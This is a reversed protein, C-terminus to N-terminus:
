ANIIEIAANVIAQAKTMNVPFGTVQQLRALVDQMELWLVSASLQMKRNQAKAARAENIIQGSISFVELGVTIAEFIKM